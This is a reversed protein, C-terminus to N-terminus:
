TNQYPNSNTLTWILTQSYAASFDADADLNLSFRCVGVDPESATPFPARSGLPIFSPLGRQQNAWAPVLRTRRTLVLGYLVRATNLAAATGKM